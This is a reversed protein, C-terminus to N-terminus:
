FSNESEDELYSSANRFKTAFNMKADIPVNESKQVMGNMEPLKLSRFKVAVDFLLELQEMSGGNELCIQFHEAISTVRPADTVQIEAGVVEKKTGDGDEALVSCVNCVYLSVSQCVSM